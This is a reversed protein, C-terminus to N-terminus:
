GIRLGRGMERLRFSRISSSKTHARYKYNKKQATNQEKEPDSAYGLQNEISFLDIL